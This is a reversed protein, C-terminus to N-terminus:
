YSLTVTTGQGKASRIDLSAGIDMARESMSLLGLGQGARPSDPDFGRGDDAVTIVPRTENGSVGIRVRTAGAHKTVNTLAEEVIRISNIAASESLQPNASVRLDCECEIGSRESFNDALARLAEMFGFRDLVAPRLSGALQRTSRITDNVLGNLSALIQERDEPRSRDRGLRAVSLAIATLNGGLVDHVERAVRKREEEQSDRLQRALERLRAEAARISDFQSDLQQAMENFAIALDDFEDRSQSDVRIGREGRTLSRTASVLSEIPRIFRRRVALLALLPLALLAIGMFVATRRMEALSRDFLERGALHAREVDARATELTILLEANLREADGAGPTTDQGTDSILGAFLRRATAISGASREFELSPWANSLAAIQREVKDILLRWQEARRDRAFTLNSQLFILKDIDSQAQAAAQVLAHRSELQSESVAFLYIATVAIVAAALFHTWVLVRLTL